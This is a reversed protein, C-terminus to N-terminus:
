FLQRLVGQLDSLNKGLLLRVDCHNRLHLFQPGDLIENCKQFADFNELEYIGLIAWGEDFGSPLGTKPGIFGGIYHGWFSLSNNLLGWEDDLKILTEEQEDPNLELLRSISAHRRKIAVLMRYHPIIPAKKKKTIWLFYVLAVLIILILLLALFTNVINM